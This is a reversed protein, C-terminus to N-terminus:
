RIVVRKATRDVKVIYYGAALEIVTTGYSAELSKVIQGTLAYVVIQHNAEDPIDIVVQQGSVNIAPEAAANEVDAATTDAPSEAYVSPAAALTFALALALLIRKTKIM